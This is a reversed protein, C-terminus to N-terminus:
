ILISKSNHTCAILLCPLKIEPPIKKFCHTPIRTGRYMNETLSKVFSAKFLNYHYRVHVIDESAMKEDLPIIPVEEVPTPLASINTEDEVFEFPYGIHDFEQTTLHKHMQAISEREVQTSVNKHTANSKVFVFFYEM